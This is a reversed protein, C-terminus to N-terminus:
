TSAKIEAGVERLIRFVCPALHNVFGISGRATKGRLTKLEYSDEIKNDFQYTGRKERCGSRRPYSCAILTLHNAIEFWRTAMKRMLTQAWMCIKSIILTIPGRKERCGSRTHSSQCIWILTGTAMKLMIKPAWIFIKKMRLTSIRSSMLYEYPDRGGGFINLISGLITLMKQAHLGIEKFYMIGKQHGNKSGCGRLM